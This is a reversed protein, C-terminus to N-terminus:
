AIRDATASTWRNFGTTKVSPPVQASIIRGVMFASFSCMSTKMEARKRLGVSIDVVGVTRVIHLMVEVLELVQRGFDKHGECTVKRRMVDKVNHWQM